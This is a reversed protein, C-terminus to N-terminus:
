GAAGFNRLVQMGFVHSKEPHFQVGQVHGQQLAACFRGAYETEGITVAPDAPQCYYSHVFYFRSDAPLGQWLPSPRVCAVRNWGIHPVKVAAGDAGPLFRRVNGRVWGFGALEGEESAELLLQMGLCIGLVPVRRVRVAADLPEWLGRARLERVGQDFRGVGPVVIRTAADLDGPATAGQADLGVKRFMNLVSGINCMGYDIVAIV